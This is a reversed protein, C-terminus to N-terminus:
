LLVLTLISITLPLYTYSSRNITIWFSKDGMKRGIVAKMFAILFYIIIIPIFMILLINRVVKIKLLFWTLLSLLFSFIVVPVYYPIAIDGAGSKIDSTKITYWTSGLKNVADFFLGSRSISVKFPFSGRNNEDDTVVISFTKVTGYDLDGPINISIEIFSPSFENPLVDLPTPTLITVWDCTTDNSLCFADVSISDSGLNTVVVTSTRLSGKNAIIDIRNGGNRSTLTYNGGEVFILTDGGGGGGTSGITSGGSPRVTVTFLQNVETVNLNGSFDEAYIYSWNYTGETAVEDFDYSAIVSLASTFTATLNKTQTPKEIQFYVTKINSALDTVNVTMNNTQDTFMATYELTANYTDPTTADGITVSDNVWESWNFTDKVRVSVTWIDNSSTNEPNISTLNDLGSLLNSGNYWRTENLEWTDNDLDTFIISLNLHDNETLPKNLLLPIPIPLTKDFRLLAEDTENWNNSTDNAYFKYHCNDIDKTYQLTENYVFTVNWGNHFSTTINQWGTSTCNWSFVSSSINFDTWTINFQITDNNQTSHNSNNGSWRPAKIDDFQVDIGSYGGVGRVGSMNVKCYCYIGTKNSCSSICTNIKTSNLNIDTSFNIITENYYIQEGEMSVSLNSPYQKFAHYFEWDLTLSKDGGVNVVQTIVKEDSTANFCIYGSANTSNYIDYETKAYPTYTDCDIATSSLLSWSGESLRSVFQYTLKIKYSTGGAGDDFLGNYGDLTFDYNHSGASLSGASIYADNSFNYFFGSNSTHSRTFTNNYGTFVLTASTSNADEPMELYRHYENLSNTFSINTASSSDSFSTFSFGNAIPFIIALSILFLIIRHKM